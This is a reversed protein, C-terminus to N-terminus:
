HSIFNCILLLEAGYTWKSPISIPDWHNCFHVLSCYTEFFNNLLRKVILCQIILKKIYISRKAVHIHDCSKSITFLFEFHSRFYTNWTVDLLHFQKKEPQFKEIWLYILMWLNHYFPFWCRFFHLKYNLNYVGWSSFCVKSRVVKLPWLFNTSIPVFPFCNYRLFFM